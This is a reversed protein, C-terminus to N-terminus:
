MSNQEVRTLFDDVVSLYRNPEEAHAYHSSAEFLVWESGAIGDRLVEVQIPTAIDHRGSTILTPIHIEELRMRIDWDDLNFDGVPPRELARQLFEPWPDIRCIHRLDFVRIAEQYAPDDTTGAAEHEYLTTQVDRPLEGRLRNFEAEDLSNSARTSHLILSVLGAPQTLTYELAVKGGWSHGLLHIRDLGLAHRVVAVEDVFLAMSWLSTDDPRDSNGCGLQDYLIVPRGTEALRELPELSEHSVPSGHLMLVPCKDPMIQGLDGVIRYWTRYGRFPIFGESVPFTTSM